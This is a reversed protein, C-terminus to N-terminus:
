KKQNWTRLDFLNLTMKRGARQLVVENKNIEILTADDVKDGVRVFNDNILALRRTKGIIISQLQFSTKKGQANEPQTNLSNLQPMTPDRGDQDLAFSLVPCLLILLVVFFRMM